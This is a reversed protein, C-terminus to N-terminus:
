IIVTLRSLLNMASVAHATYLHLVRGVSMEDVLFYRCSVEDDGDALVVGALNKGM